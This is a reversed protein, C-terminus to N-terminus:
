MSSGLGEGTQERFGKGVRGKSSHELGKATGLPALGAAAEPGECNSNEAQFARARSMQM